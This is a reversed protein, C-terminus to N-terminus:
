YRRAEELYLWYPQPLELDMKENKFEIGFALAYAMHTGWMDRAASDPAVEGREMAALYERYELCEQLKEQGEPSRKDM